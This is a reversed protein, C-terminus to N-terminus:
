NLQIFMIIKFYLAFDILLIKKKMFISLIDILEKILDYIKDFYKKLFIKFKM